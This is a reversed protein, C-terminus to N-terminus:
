PQLSSHSTCLVLGHQSVSSMVGWWGFRRDGLSCLLRTRSIDCCAVALGGMDAEVRWKSEPKRGKRSGLIATKEQTISLRTSVDSQFTSRWQGKVNMETYTGYVFLFRRCLLAKGLLQLSLLPDCSSSNVALSFLCFLSWLCPGNYLVNGM